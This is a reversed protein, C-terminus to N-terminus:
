NLISEHELNTFGGDNHANEYGLDKMVKLAMGSRNGSRCYVHIVANKNGILDTIREGVEEHALHLAGEVHGSNYEAASRVDLWIEEQAMAATSTFILAVLSGKIFAKMIFARMVFVRMIIGLSLLSTNFM